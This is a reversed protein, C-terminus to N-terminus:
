EPPLFLFTCLSSLAVLPFFLLHLKGLLSLLLLYMVYFNLVILGARATGKVIAVNTNLRPISHINKKRSRFWEPFSPQVMPRSSSGHIFFLVRPPSCFSPSASPAPVTPVRRPFILIEFGIKRPMNLLCGEAAAAMTAAMVTSGVQSCREGDSRGDRYHLKGGRSEREAV